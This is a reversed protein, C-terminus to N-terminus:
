SSALFSVFGNCIVNFIESEYYDITNQSFKSRKRNKVASKAGLLLM